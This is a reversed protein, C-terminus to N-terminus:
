MDALPPATKLPLTESSLQLPKPETREGSLALEGYFECTALKRSSRQGSAALIGVAIPLDFRGREKPLDAPSQNVTIRGVPFEFGSTILASRMREKSERVVAELLGVLAFAPLGPGLHAEVRV